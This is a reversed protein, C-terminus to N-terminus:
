KIFYISLKKRILIIFGKSILALKNQIFLDEPVNKLYKIVIINM